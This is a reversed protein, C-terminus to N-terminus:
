TGSPLRLRDRGSSPWPTQLPDKWPPRGPHPTEPTKALDRSAQQPGEAPVDPGPPVLGSEELEEYGSKTIRCLYELALAAGSRKSAPSPAAAIGAERLRRRAEKKREKKLKRELVRQEEPSVYASASGKESAPRPSNLLTCAPLGPRQGQVDRTCLGCGPSRLVTPCRAPLNRRSALGQRGSAGM